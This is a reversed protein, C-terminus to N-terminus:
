NVSLLQVDFVLASNAPIAGNASSGYALSAPIVLTRKGGVKMGVVGQDWGAIVSGAGLTFTFPTRGTTLSSDFQGGHFMAANADYVWGTYNVTISKGAVAAAGTGVLTDVASLVTPQNASVTTAASGGGGCATLAAVCVLSAVTQLFSKM